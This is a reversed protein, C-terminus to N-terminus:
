RKPHGPQTRACALSADNAPVIRDTHVRVSDVHTAIFDRDESGSPSGLQERIAKIVIAEIEAAPVRNVLGCQEKQGQVVAGSIYYRYRVGQKTVHTPTMRNGRDDASRASPASAPVYQAQSPERALREATM